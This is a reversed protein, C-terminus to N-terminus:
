DWVLPAYYTDIVLCLLSFFFLLYRSHVDNVPVIAELDHDRPCKRCYLPGICFDTLVTYFQFQIVKCFHHVSKSKKKKSPFFFLTGLPPSCVEHYQASLLLLM